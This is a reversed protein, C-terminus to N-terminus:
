KTIERLIERPNGKERSLLTPNTTVGDLLGYSVAERIEEVNATDIFFKMHPSRAFGSSPRVIGVIEPRSETDIRHLAKKSATVRLRRESRRARESPAHGGPVAACRRA